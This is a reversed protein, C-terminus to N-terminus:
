GNPLPALPGKTCFKPVAGLFNKRLAFVITGVSRLLIELFNAGDRSNAGDSRGKAM